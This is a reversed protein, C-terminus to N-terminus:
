QNYGFETDLLRYYETQTFVFNLGMAFNASSLAVASKKQLILIAIFDSVIKMFLLSMCVSYLLILFFRNKSTNFIKLRKSYESCMLM